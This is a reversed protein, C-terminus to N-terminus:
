KCSDANVGLAAGGGTVSHLAFIAGVVLLYLNGVQHAQKLLRMARASRGPGVFERVGTVTQPV